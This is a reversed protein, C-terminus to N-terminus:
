RNNWIRSFLILSNESQSYTKDFQNYDSCDVFLIVLDIERFKTIWKGMEESSGGADTFCCHQLKLSKNHEFKILKEFYDFETTPVYIKM